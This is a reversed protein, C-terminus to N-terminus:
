MRCGLGADPSVFVSAPSGMSNIRGTTGQRVPVPIM